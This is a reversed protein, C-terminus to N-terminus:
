HQYYSLGKGSFRMGVIQEPDCIFERLVSAPVTLGITSYPEKTTMTVASATDAVTVDGPELVVTRRDTVLTHRRNSLYFTTPTIRPM